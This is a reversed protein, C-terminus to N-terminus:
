DLGSLLDAPPSPLDAIGRCSINAIASIAKLGPDDSFIEKANNVAAIAVIQLDFKIRHRSVQDRMSKLRGNWHQGMLTAVEVAARDDFGVIRFVSLKRIAELYSSASVGTNVLAEALVPTPLLLKTGRKALDSILLRVKGAADVVPKETNPDIPVASNPNILYIFVSTDLAIM